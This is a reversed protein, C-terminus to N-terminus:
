PHRHTLLAMAMPNNDQRLIDPEIGTAEYVDEVLASPLFKFSNQAVFPEDGSSIQIHRGMFTFDQDRLPRVTHAQQTYHESPHPITVSEHRWVCPDFNGEIQDGFQEQLVHLFRTCFDENLAGNYAPRLREERQETDFDFGLHDGPQLGAAVNKFAERATKRGDAEIGGRLGMITSGLIILAKPKRDVELTVEGKFLDQVRETVKVDTLERVLEATKRTAEPDIDNAIFEELGRHQMARVLPVTRATIIDEVDSPGGECLTRVPAWRRAIRETLHTLLLTGQNALYYEPKGKVIKAWNDGFYNWKGMGGENERSVFRLFDEPLEGFPNFAETPKRVAATM